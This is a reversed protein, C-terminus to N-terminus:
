NKKIIKTTRKGFFMVMDVRRNNQRGKATTNTDIPRQEGHGISTIRSANIGKNIFYQRVSAARNKSLILNSQDKGVNDTHGELHINSKPYKKLLRVVEDLIPFSVTKIEAKSFAFLVKSAKKLIEEEEKKLIEPCGKNKKPGPKDPCLDDEDIIGDGDRDKKKAPPCGKLKKIGPKDPCKDVINPIGDGDADPLCGFEDVDIPITFNEIKGNITVKAEYISPRKILSDLDRIKSLITSKTPNTTEDAKRMRKLWRSKKILLKRRRIEFNKRVNRFVVVVKKGKVTVAQALEYNEILEPTTPCKDRVNPVGDYDSDVTYVPSVYQASSPLAFFVLILLSITKTFRPLIQTNFKM